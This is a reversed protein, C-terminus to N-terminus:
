TKMGWVQLRTVFYLLSVTFIHILLLSHGKGKKGIVREKNRKIEVQPIKLMEKELLSRNELIIYVTEIMDQVEKQIREKFTKLDM